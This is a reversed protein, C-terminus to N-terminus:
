VIVKGIKRALPTALCLGVLACAWTLRIHARTVQLGKLKVGKSTLTHERPSFSVAALM